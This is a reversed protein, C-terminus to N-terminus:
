GNVVETTANVADTTVKKPRAPRTRPRDHYASHCKPCTLPRGPLRPYWKKDCRLCVWEKIAEKNETEM